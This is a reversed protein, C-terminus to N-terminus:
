LQEVNSKETYSNMKEIQPNLKSVINKNISRIEM